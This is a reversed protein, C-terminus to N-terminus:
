LDVLKLCVFGVLSVCAGLFQLVRFTSANLGFRGRRVDRGTGDGVRM